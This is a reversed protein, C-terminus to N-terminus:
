DSLVNIIENIINDTIDDPNEFSVRISGTTPIVEIVDNDTNKDTDGGSMNYVDENACASSNGVYIGRSALEAISGMPCEDVSILLTSYMHDGKPEYVLLGAGVLKNFSDHWKTERTYRNPAEEFLVDNLIMESYGLTGGRLGEQQRGAILPKFPAYSPPDIVLVGLGMSGGVKHLSFFVANLGWRQMDIPLKTISQAADLVLLPRYQGVNDPGNLSEGSANMFSFTKFNRNFNPMNLIEGTKGNVHTLFIMSTNDDASFKNLNESYSMGYLECNDKVASHDYSTGKIDGYQNYNKAWWVCNAISETAGSNIIVKSTAKANVLKRIKVKFKELELRLSTNEPYALDSPNFDGNYIANTSARNLYAGKIMRKRKRHLLSMITIVLSICTIIWQFIFVLTIM